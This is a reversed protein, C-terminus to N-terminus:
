KYLFLTLDLHHYHDILVVRSAGLRRGFAALEKPDVSFREAERLGAEANLVNFAVGRRVQKLVSLLLARMYKWNDQVKVNFVGSLLGYDFSRPPFPRALVNRVEFKAQPHARKAERIVAPFLDVGQYDARIGKQSLYGYFAGLGCGVDLVRTGELPGVAALAEFRSRQSEPTQWGVKKEPADHRALQSAYYVELARLDRVSFGPFDEPSFGGSPARGAAKLGELRRFPRRNV